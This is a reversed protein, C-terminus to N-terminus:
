IVLKPSVFLGDFAVRGCRAVRWDRDLRPCSRRSFWLPFTATLKGGDENPLASMVPTRDATAVGVVPM